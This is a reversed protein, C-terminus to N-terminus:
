SYREDYGTRALHSTREPLREPKAVFALARVGLQKAVLELSWPAVPQARVRSVRLLRAFCRRPNTSSAALAAAAPKGHVVAAGNGVAGAKAWL